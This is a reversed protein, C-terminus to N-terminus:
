NRESLRVKIGSKMLSGALHSAAQNSPACALIQGEYKKVMESIVTTKGTGPPGVIMTVPNDVTMAM